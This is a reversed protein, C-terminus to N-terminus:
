VPSRDTGWRAASIGRARLLMEIRKRGGRRSRSFPMLPPAFTLTKACCFTEKM